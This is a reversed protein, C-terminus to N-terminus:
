GQPQPELLGFQLLHHVCHKYHSRHWEEAGIPGFVPNTHQSEPHHRYYEDFHKMEGLLATRAEDLSGHKLPPPLEDMVPSRFEVPTPRDDHLFRKARERLAEPAACPVESRGTSIEFVWALHEVMHQVSMRGWRPQESGDIGALVQPLISELLTKRGAEDNVEFRISPAAM